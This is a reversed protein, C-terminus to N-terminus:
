ILDNFHIQNIKSLEEYKPFEDTLVVFQIPFVLYDDSTERRNFRYDNNVALLSDFALVETEPSEVASFSIFSFEDHKSIKVVKAELESMTTDCYHKKHYKEDIKAM